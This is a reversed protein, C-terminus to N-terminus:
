RSGSVFEDIARWPHFSNLGLPSGYQIRYGMRFQISSSLSWDLACFAFVNSSLAKAVGASGSLLFAAYAEISVHEDM